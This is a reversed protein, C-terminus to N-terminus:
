IDRIKFLLDTSWVIGNVNVADYLVLNLSYVGAALASQGLALTIEESDYSVITPNDVSNFAVGDGIFEVKTTLSLDYPAGDNTLSLTFKNDRDSFFTNVHAKWNPGQARTAPSLLVVLLATSQLV